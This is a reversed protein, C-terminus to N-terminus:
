RLPKLDKKNIWGKSTRGLANTYVIYIFGNKDQLSNLVNNKLPDLFTKRSSGTVPEDHFFTTDVVKYKVQLNKGYSQTGDDATSEFDNQSKEDGENNLESASDSQSPLQNNPQEKFHNIGATDYLIAKIQQQSLPPSPENVIM